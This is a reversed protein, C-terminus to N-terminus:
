MEVEYASTDMTCEDFGLSISDSRKNTLEVHNKNTRGWEIGMMCIQQHNISSTPQKVFVWNGM